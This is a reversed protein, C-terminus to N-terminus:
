ATRSAVRFVYVAKANGAQGASAAHVAAATMVATKVRAHRNVANAPRQASKMPIVITHRHLRQTAILTMHGVIVIVDMAQEMNQVPVHGNPLRAVRANIALASIDTRAYGASAEAITV